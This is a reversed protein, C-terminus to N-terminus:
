EPPTTTPTPAAGSPVKMSRIRHRHLTRTTTAQPVTTTTANQPAIRPVERAIAARPGHLIDPENPADIQFHRITAATIAANSSNDSAEVSVSVLLAIAVLGAQGFARYTM